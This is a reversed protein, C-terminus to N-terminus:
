VRRAKRVEFLLLGVVAFFLSVAVPLTEYPLWSHVAQAILPVRELPIVGIGFLVYGTMGWAIATLSTRLREELILSRSVPLVYSVGGVLLLTALSLLLGM